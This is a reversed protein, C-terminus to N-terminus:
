KEGADEPLPIMIYPYKGVQDLVKVEKGTVADLVALKAQDPNLVYVYKGDRSVELGQCDKLSLEVERQLTLDKTSFIRLRRSPQPSGALPPQAQVIFLAGGAESVAAPGPRLDKAREEGQRVVKPPNASLDIKRMFGPQEGRDVPPQPVYYAYRGGDAVVGGTGRLRFLLNNEPKELETPDVKAVSPDDSLLLRSRITGSDFDVVELLSLMGNFVHVQPWDAVRLFDVGHCRPVKVIKRCSQFFGGTDVERKVCSLWTTALDSPGRFAPDPGQVILEQGNPSLQSDPAAGLQYSLRPISAPPQGSELPKMDATRYFELYNGRQTAGRGRYNALVALVDGKSSLAISNNYGINFRAPLVKGSEIEAVLLRHETGPQNQMIDLVLVRHRVAAPVPEEPKPQPREAERAAPQPTDAPQAGAPPRAARAQYAAIGAGAALAGAILLVAGVKIKTLFMARLVEKALAAAPVAAKGEAFLLAARVAGEALAAPLAATALNEALLVGVLAATAAVGRRALRRRLLDRARALRGAVTGEKWGLQQAAETRSRGELCCLVLPLRYKEPLRRLEEHLVSQLEHGAAAASPDAPPMARAQREHAQRRAAGARAKAAVRAAVEYLWGAVSEQWGPAAAKRALVLFTAQFADEADDENGLIRRCVALVLPGHRQVLAAFAAEDHRAAFRRLLQRDTGAGSEPTGTLKRIHRLLPHVQERPV